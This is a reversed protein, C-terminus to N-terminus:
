GLREILLASKQQKEDEGLAKFREKVVKRLEKKEM